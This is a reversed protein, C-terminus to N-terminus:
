LDVIYRSALRPQVVVLLNVRSIFVFGLFLFIDVTYLTNTYWTSSKEHIKAWSHKMYTSFSSTNLWRLRWQVSTLCTACIYMCIHNNTFILFYVLVSIFKTTSRFVMFIGHLLWSVVMVYGLRLWSTVIFCGHSLWSAIMVWDHRLRFAVMVCGPLLWLEVM